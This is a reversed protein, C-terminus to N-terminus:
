YLVTPFWAGAPPAYEGLTMYTMPKIVKLGAALCARFLEFQRTPLLFSAPMGSAALTAVILGFLDEHTEAVGFAGPFFSVGTVFAVIRGDRRAVRPQLFPSALADRLERTREFGHVRRHLADCEDLDAEQLPRMDVGRDLGPRPRGGMLVIPERTRFGLDTYLAMSRGNFADQLLRIDRGDAGREIVAEMLRRGIRRTQVDPDVTIPGVGRVPGREDLFNSGVVRGGLEAVIGWICPHASFAAALGAAAEQTPFDRPFRHHDHIGAFAAYIIRAVAEGDGPGMPRLNVQASPAEREITQM